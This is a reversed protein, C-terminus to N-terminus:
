LPEQLVDLQRDVISYDPFGPEREMSQWHVGGDIVGLNFNSRLTDFYNAPPALLRQVGLETGLAFSAKQAVEALTGPSPTATKTPRPM